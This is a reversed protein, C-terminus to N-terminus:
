GACLACGVLMAGSGRCGGVSCEVGALVEVELVPLLLERAASTARVVSGWKAFGSDNDASLSNSGGGSGSVGCTSACEAGGVISSMWSGSSESCSRESSGGAAGTVVPVYALAECRSVDCGTAGERGAGPAGPFADRVVGAGEAGLVEDTCAALGLGLADAM